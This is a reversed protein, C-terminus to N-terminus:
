LRLEKMVLQAIEELPIKGDTGSLKDRLEKFAAERAEQRATTLLDARVYEIYESLELPWPNINAEASTPHLYIREPADKENTM